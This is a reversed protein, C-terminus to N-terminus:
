HLKDPFLVINARVDLAASLRDILTRVRQRDADPLMAIVEVDKVMLNLGRTNDLADVIVGVGHMIKRGAAQVRDAEPEPESRTYTITRSVSAPQETREYTITRNVPASQEVREATILIPPAETPPLRTVHITTADPRPPTRHAAITAKVENVSLREGKASREAVAEVAEPPTGEAALLYLASIPANLDTFNVTKSAEAVAMFKKAASESWDFERELWPLWHGHGCIEKAAALHEGIEIIDEIVRKGLRRIEIAHEALQALAERKLAATTM